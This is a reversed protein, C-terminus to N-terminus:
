AHNDEWTGRWAANTDRLEQRARQEKQHHTAEIARAAFAEVSADDYVESLLSARMLRRVDDLASAFKSVYETDAILMRPGIQAEHM